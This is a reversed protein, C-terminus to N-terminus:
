SQRRTKKIVIKKAPILVVKNNQWVVIPKGLLKHKLLAEQVGQKIANLLKKKNAITASIKDIAKKRSM